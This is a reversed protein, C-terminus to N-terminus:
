VAGWTKHFNPKYCFIIGGNFCFTSMGFVLFIQFKHLIKLSEVKRELQQRYNLKYHFVTSICFFSLLVSANESISESNQFEM